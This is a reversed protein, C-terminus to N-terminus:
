NKSITKDLYLELDLDRILFSLRFYKAAYIDSNALTVGVRDKFNKNISLNGNTKIEDTLDRLISYKSLFDPTLRYTIEKLEFNSKDFYCSLYVNSRKDFDFYKRKRNM